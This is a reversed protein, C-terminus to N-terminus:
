RDIYKRLRPGIRNAAALPMQQWIREVLRRLPDVKAGTEIKKHCVGGLRYWSLPVPQAGWQKKFAYTGENPTSRGFDFFRFGHDAAFELFTWYLMMNPSLRNFERLTSAWPITITNGHLLIIGVAVPLDGKYVVGLRSRDDFASIVNLLWKKSHVPSGLDRMNKSFVRYFNPLLEVQGLRSVLGGKGARNVQSRLKSKFGAKLTAASEPLKLVMRCKDTIQAFDTEQDIVPCSIPSRIELGAQLENALALAQTLLEAAIEHNDALIGGYDCFPLSVLNGRSLPPKVLVLPLCGTMTQNNYAALYFTRHTYGKEVAEKWATTLYVGGADHGLVYQDWTSHDSPTISKIEPM